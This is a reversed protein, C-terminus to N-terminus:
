RCGKAWKISRALERAVGEVYSLDAEGNHSPPTGVTIFVVESAEVATVIDSSFHLGLAQM